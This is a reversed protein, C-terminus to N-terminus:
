GDRNSRQELRYLWDRGRPSIARLTVRRGEREPSLTVRWDPSGLWGAGREPWEVLLISPTAFYDDLGLYALEAGDSLRYLDFHFVTVGDLAYPEVLTYTPSKVGGEHGLGRLLGRSLTTKGVGLDGELFVLAPKELVGSMEAGLTLTAEENSLYRTQTFDTDPEM